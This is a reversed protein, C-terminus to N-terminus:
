SAPSVWLDVIDEYTRAIADVAADRALRQELYAIAPEWYITRGIAFGGATPAGRAAAFWQRITRLDAHKGLVLQKVGPRRAIAADVPRMADADPVGEIKWYDPVVGAAYAAGIYRALALPRGTREFETEPEGVRPVLVELVLPQNVARCWAQLRDLEALQANRLPPPEDPRHRVLVKVFAGIAHPDFSPESWALPSAGAREAPTGVIAGAAVVRAIDAKAYALDILLAGSRRVAESRSRALLFGDAALAKVDAIRARGVGSRDCWDEWQWRHDAAFMLVPDPLTARITM